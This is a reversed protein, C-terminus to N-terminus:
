ILIEMVLWRLIKKPNSINYNANIDDYYEKNSDIDKKIYEKLIDVNIPIKIDNIEVLNLVNKIISM